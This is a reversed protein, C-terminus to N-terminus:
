IKQFEQIPNLSIDEHKIFLWDQHSNYYKTVVFYILKWLLSAQEVADYEKSAAEIIEAKFPYLYQEMLLPQKTFHSFDFKWNKKKFSSVFAAPHRVLIVVDMDFKKALWEASFVAIPDKLLPRARSFKYRYFNSYDRALRLIDRLSKVSEIEAKLNYSFNITQKIDEYFLLENEQSIYTFWREFEASCIGLRHELNFPEKIYGVSSSLAIMKGVWTSGSAHSGTVLIPKQYNMIKPKEISIM